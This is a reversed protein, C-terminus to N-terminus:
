AFLSCVDTMSVVDVVREDNVVWVHHANGQIMGGIVDRLTSQKTCTVPPLLGEKTGQLFEVVPVELSHLDTVVVHRADYARLNGVVRGQHVIPMSTLNHQVLRKFGTMATENSALTVVSRGKALGLTDLAADVDVDSMDHTYLYRILDTQTLIFPASQGYYDVVLVRHTRGSFGKLLKHISDQIDVNHLVYSEREAELPILVDIPEHLSGQVLPVRACYDIIDLTDIMAVIHSPDNHSTIPVCHIKYTDLLELTKKISLTPPITILAPPHPCIDTPTLDKFM